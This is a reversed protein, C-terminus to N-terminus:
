PLAGRLDAVGFDLTSHAKGHESVAIVRVPGENRARIAGPLLVSVTLGGLAATLYLNSWNRMMSCGHAHAGDRRLIRSRIAPCNPPALPAKTLESPALHPASVCLFRGRGHPKQPIISAPATPPGQRYRIALRRSGLFIRRDTRNAKPCQTYREM